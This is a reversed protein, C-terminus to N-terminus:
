SRKEEEHLHVGSYTGRYHFRLQKVKLLPRGVTGALNPITSRVSLVANPEDLFIKIIRFSLNM